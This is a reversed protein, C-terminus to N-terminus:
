IAAPQEALQLSHVSLPQGNLRQAILVSGRDFAASLVGLLWGFLCSNAVTASLQVYKFMIRPM